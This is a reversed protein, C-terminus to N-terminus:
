CSCQQNCPHSRHRIGRRRSGGPLRHVTRFSEKRCLLVLGRRGFLVLRLRCFLIFRLRGPRGPLRLWRLRGPAILLRHMRGLRACRVPLLGLGAFLLRLRRHLVPLLRCRMGRSRLRRSRSMPLRCAPASANRIIIELGMKAARMTKRHPLHNRCGPDDGILSVKSVAAVSKDEQIGPRIIPRRGVIAIDVIHIALIEQNVESMRSHPDCQRDHRILRDCVVARHVVRGTRAVAGCRIVSPYQLRQLWEFDRVTRGARPVFRGGGTDEPYAYRWGFRFPLPRLARRM